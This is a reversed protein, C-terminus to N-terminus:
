YFFKLIFVILNSVMQLKDKNKLLVEETHKYAKAVLRRAEEDILAAMKKSFPRRGLEKIEDETFSVLGVLQNMGYERVQAYAMKTVRELDNQAGTTVRNFTLSEAVRGGLAMCMRDFLEEQSYLKQDKPLYQAFGLALNTRPVITIKLLADTHKLLWGVLAHGSEHYAVVQREEPSMAHSRKETGGVLREVAYELDTRTVKKQKNRAAHLAAENCVNAIDAGSFGPTLHALRRSYHSPPHELAISKLHQEFIEQREEVDPFDILIHRDFRGPRLLAKLFIM